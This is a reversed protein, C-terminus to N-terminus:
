LNGHLSSAKQLSAQKRTANYLGKQMGLSEKM